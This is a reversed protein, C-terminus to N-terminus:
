ANYTYDLIFENIDNNPAIMGFSTIPIGNNIELTGSKGIRMPERNVLVLSGPRSQIGIKNVQSRPLINAVIAVDRKESGAISQEEIAVIRPAITYDYAVRRLQFVLYQSTKFPTFVLEVTQYPATINTERGTENDIKAQYNDLLIQYYEAAPAYNDMSLRQKAAECWRIFAGERTNESESGANFYPQILLPEGITQYKGNPDHDPFLKVDINLNHPDNDGAGTTDGMNYNLDIRDILLRVYYPTNAQFNGQIALDQFTTAGVGTTNFYTMTHSIGSIYSQGSAKRIQGVRIAM